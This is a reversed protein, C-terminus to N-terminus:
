NFQNTRLVSFKMIGDVSQVSSIRFTELKNVLIKPWTLVLHLHICTGQRKQWAEKLGTMEFDMIKSGKCRQSQDQVEVRSGKLVM